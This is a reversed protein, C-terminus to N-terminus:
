RAIRLYRSVSPFCPWPGLRLVVEDPLAGFTSLEHFYASGQAEWYERADLVRM